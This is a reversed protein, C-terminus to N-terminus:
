RDSKVAGQAGECLTRCRRHSVDVGGLFEARASDVVIARQFVVIEEKGPTAVGETLARPDLLLTLPEILNVVMTAGSHISDM